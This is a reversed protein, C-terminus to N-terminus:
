SATYVMSFNEYNKAGKGNQVEMTNERLLTMLLEKLKLLKNTEGILNLANWINSELKLWIM